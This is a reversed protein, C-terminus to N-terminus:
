ASKFMSQSIVMAALKLIQGDVEDFADLKPSFVKLVGIAKDNSILPVVIMSRLGVRQCAQKDVREDTNADSCYLLEQTKICLGSLSSESSLRMGLLSAAKGTAAKYVMENKERLELVAGSSFTLEQAVECMQHMIEQDTPKNAIIGSQTVIISILQQKTMLSFDSVKLEVM